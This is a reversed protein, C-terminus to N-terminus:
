APFPVTTSANPNSMDRARLLERCVPCFATNPPDTLDHRM